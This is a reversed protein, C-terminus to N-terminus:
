IVEFGDDDADPDSVDAYIIPDSTPDVVIAGNSDTQADQGAADRVIKAPDVENGVLQSSSAALSASVSVIRIMDAFVQLDNTKLVAEANPVITGDKRVGIVKALVSTDCGEGLAFAIKIAHRYWKNEALTKLGAEWDDNPQGDSMFIIVPVKNGTEAHMKDNRSLSKHLEELAGGLYTLGGANLDTWVFDKLNEVGNTGQTVWRHTSNYELVAIRLDAKEGDKKNLEKVTARMADNLAGIPAGTMSGSTDLVYFIHLEKKVTGELKDTTLAM